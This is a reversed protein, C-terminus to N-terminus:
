PIVISKELQLFLTSCNFCLSYPRCLWFYKCNPGKHFFNSDYTMSRCNCYPYFWTVLSPLQLLLLSGLTRLRLIKVYRVQSFPTKSPSIRWASTGRWQTSNSNMHTERSFSSRVTGKIEKQGRGRGLM